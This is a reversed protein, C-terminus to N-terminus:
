PPQLPHHHTPKWAASALFFQLTFGCFLFRIAQRTTAVPMRVGM